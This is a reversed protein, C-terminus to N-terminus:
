CLFPFFFLFFLLNVKAAKLINGYNDVMQDIKEDLRRQYDEQLRVSAAKKPNTATSTM